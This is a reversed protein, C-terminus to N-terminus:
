AAIVWLFPSSPIAPRTKPKLAASPYFWRGVPYSRRVKPTEDLLKMREFNGDGIFCIYHTPIDLRDSFRCNHNLFKVNRPKIVKPRPSIHHPPVHLVNCQLAHHRAITCLGSIRFLVASQLPIVEFTRLQLTKVATLDHTWNM